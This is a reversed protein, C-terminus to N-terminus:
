EDDADMWDGPKTGDVIKSALFPFSCVRGRMEEGVMEHRHRCKKVTLSFEHDEDDFETWVEVQVKAGMHKWGDRVLRGTPKDKLYEEKVPHIFVVNSDSEIAAQVIARMKMNISEWYRANANMKGGFESLRLLELMSCADDVVVTPMKADLMAYYPKEFDKAWTRKYDFSPDPTRPMMVKKVEVVKGTRKMLNGVSGEEGYDFSFTAIPGPASWALTSKGTAERGVVSMVLRKKVKGDAKVFGHEKLAKRVKEEDM